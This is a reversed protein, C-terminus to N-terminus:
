QQGRGGREAGYYEDRIWAYTRELGHRLQTSPTWGLEREIRTNDSNRGNVGKPAALNYRRNLTVGAISEAMDVLENITVLESSGLNFPEGIDSSSIRQVGAVCDDVYMFSRTQTGPGWIEIENSGSAVAEIVKRCIAAPAKERGDNWSGRPGYVNHFRAVRTALGFDERFHRCMRESFLKEWGYGDEPMAPYADEERLAIVDENAQREANYVCASSSYFFRDAGADRAAVLMHTNILVSLMCLAKNEEIFGIGGMEAALQFVESVDTMVAHCSALERLDAVINESAASVQHWAHVPKIDVARVRRGQAVLDAVLHGGIFGGAGTVLTLQSM